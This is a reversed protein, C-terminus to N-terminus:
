KPYTDLYHIDFKLFFLEYSNANLEISNKILGVYVNLVILCMM